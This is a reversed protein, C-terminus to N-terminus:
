RPQGTVFEVVLDGILDPRELHLFHGADDVMEFRSGGVSLHDPTLAAIERGMCGDDAGHLYLLPQPPVSLTANQADAFDPRHLEFGLSHRYFDLTAALHDPTPVCAIFHAVDDTADYGPSWDNWLRTIYEYDNMPVIANALANLQFFMYWSRKLQEFSFFGSAAAPGIPVAMTVVRSWRQPALSAWSIRGWNM